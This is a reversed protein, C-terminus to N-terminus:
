SPGAVTEATIDRIPIAEPWRTFRDLCTLLYTHGVSVRLPGVLDLHVHEFRTVNETFSGIPAVNHRYVKITQCAICTKSWFKIEKSMHPWLYREKIIKLTQRRGPHNLGHYKDFIRRRLTTSICPRARKETVECMLDNILPFRLSTGAHVLADLSPDTKQAETLEQDTNKPVISNIRSLAYTTAAKSIVYIERSNYYICSTAHREQHIATKIQYM